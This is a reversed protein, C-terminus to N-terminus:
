SLRYFIILRNEQQQVGIVGSISRGMDAVAGSDGVVVGFAQLDFLDVEAGEFPLPLGGMLAGPSGARAAFSGTASVAAFGPASRLATTRRAASRSLCTLSGVRRLTSSMSASPGRLTPSM